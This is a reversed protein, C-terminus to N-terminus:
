IASCAAVSVRSAPQSSITTSPGFIPRYKQHGLLVRQEASSQEWLPTGWLLSFEEPNWYANACSAYDFEKAAADLLSTHDQQKNRRFNLDLKRLTKQDESLRAPADPAPALEAEPKPTM